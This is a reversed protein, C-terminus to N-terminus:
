ANIRDDHSPPASIVLFHLEADSNNFVQHAVGPAIEVGQQNLLVQREGDMEITAEGSLVFFFQRSKGHKHLVESSRPPMMEQIVSLSEAKVLHWADCHSGWSYHEASHKDIM